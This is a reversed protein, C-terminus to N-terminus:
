LVGQPHSDSVREGLKIVIILPRSRKTTSAKLIDAMLLDDVDLRLPLLNIYSCPSPLGPWRFGRAFCMGRASAFHAEGAVEALSNHQAAM